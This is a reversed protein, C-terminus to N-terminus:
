LQRASQNPVIPFNSFTKMYFIKKLFTLANLLFHKEPIWEKLSEDLKLDLRGTQNCSIFVNNYVYFRSM